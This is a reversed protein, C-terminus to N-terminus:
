DRFFSRNAWRKRRMSFLLRPCLSVMLICVESPETKVSLLILKPPVTSVQLPQLLFICREGPAAAAALLKVSPCPWGGKCVNWSGFPLDTVGLFPGMASTSKHKIGRWINGRIKRWEQKILWKRKSLGMGVAEESCGATSVASINTGPLCLPDFKWNM